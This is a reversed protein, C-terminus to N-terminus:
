KSRRLELGDRQCRRAFCNPDYKEWEFLWAESPDVKGDVFVIDGSVERQPVRLACNGLFYVERM